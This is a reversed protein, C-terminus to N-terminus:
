EANTDEAPNVDEFEYIDEYCGSLSVAILALITAIKM